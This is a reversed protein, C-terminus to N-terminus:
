SLEKRQHGETRLKRSEALSGILIADFLGTTPDTIIDPSQSTVKQSSGAPTRNQSFALSFSLYAGVKSARRGQFPELKM